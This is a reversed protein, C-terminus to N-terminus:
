PVLKSLKDALSAVQSKLEIFAPDKRIHSTNNTEYPLKQREVYPASEGRVLYLASWLTHGHGPLLLAELMYEVAKEGKLEGLVRLLELGNDEKLAKLILVQTQSM